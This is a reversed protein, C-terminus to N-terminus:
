YQKEYMKLVVMNVALVKPSKEEIIITVPLKYGTSTNWCSGIAELSTPKSNTMELIAVNISFRIVYCIVNGLALFAFVRYQRITSNIKM